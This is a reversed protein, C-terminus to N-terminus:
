RIAVVCEPLRALKNAVLGEHIGDGADVLLQVAKKGQPVVFLVLRESEGQCGAGVQSFLGACRNSTPPARPVKLEPSFATSGAARNAGVGQVRRGFPGVPPLTRNAKIALLLVEGLWRLGCGRDYPSQRGFVLLPQRSTGM